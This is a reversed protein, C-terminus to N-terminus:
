TPQSSAIMYFVAAYTNVISMLYGILSTLVAERNLCFVSKQVVVVLVISMIALTVISLTSLFM